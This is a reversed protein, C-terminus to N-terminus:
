RTKLLLISIDEENNLYIRRKSYSFWWNHNKQYSGRGGPTWVNYEGYMETLLTYISSWGEGKNFHIAIKYKDYFTYRRDLKVIRM